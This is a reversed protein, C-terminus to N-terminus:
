KEFVECKEFLYVLVALGAARKTFDNSKNSAFDLLSFFLNDGDIREENKLREYEAVFGQKLRKGFDIDICKNIFDGVQEAQTLGMVILRDVEGSLKNKAIKQRPPVVTYSSSSVFNASALYNTVVSLEAFTVNIIEKQTSELVWKEHQEKIEILKEVTYTNEQDDIIKHCDRCVFILNEHCNRQEDTMASDYRAAGEREGKIHAAEGIISEGDETTKNIVLEKRCSPIACRNGSRIYLIKLDKAPPTKRKDANM